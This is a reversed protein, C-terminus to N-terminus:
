CGGGWFFVGVKSMITGQVLTKSSFAILTSPEPNGPVQPPSPLPSPPLPTLQQRCRIPSVSCDGGGLPASGHWWVAAGVRRGLRAVGWAGRRGGGGM